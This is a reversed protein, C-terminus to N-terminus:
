LPSFFAQIKTFSSPSFLFHVDAHSLINSLFITLTVSMKGTPDFMKGIVCVNKLQLSFFLFFLVCACVGVCVDMDQDFARASSNIGDLQRAALGACVRATVRFLALSRHAPPKQAHESRGASVSVM